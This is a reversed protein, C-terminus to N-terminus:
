QLKEIIILEDEESAPYMVDKLEAGEDDIIFMSDDLDDLLYPTAIKELTKQVKVGKSALIAIVDDKKYSSNVAGDKTIQCVFLEELEQKHALEILTSLTKKNAVKIVWTRIDM